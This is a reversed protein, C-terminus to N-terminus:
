YDCSWDDDPLYRRCDADTCDSGGDCDSANVDSALDELSTWKKFQKMQKVTLSFNDQFTRWIHTRIRPGFTHGHSVIFLVDNTLKSKIKNDNHDLSHNRITFCLKAAADRDISWDRKDKLDEELDILHRLGSSTPITPLTIGLYDALTCLDRISVKISLKTLLLSSDLFGSQANSICAHLVDPNMDTLVHGEENRTQKARFSIMSEFFPIRKLFATRVKFMTNQAIFTFIDDAPSKKMEHFVHLNNVLETLEEKITNDYEDENVVAGGFDKRQKSACKKSSYDETMVM